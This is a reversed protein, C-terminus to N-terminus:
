QAPEAGGLLVGCLCGPACRVCQLLFRVEVPKLSAVMLQLGEGLFYDFSDVHPAVLAEFEEPVQPGRAQGSMM